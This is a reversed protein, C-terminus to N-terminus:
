RWANKSDHNQPQNEQSPPGILAYTYSMHKDKTTKDDSKSDFGLGSKDFHSRQSNIIEELIKSSDQQKKKNQPKVRTTAIKTELKKIIENKGQLQKILADTIEKCEDLQEKLQLVKQNETDSNDIREM